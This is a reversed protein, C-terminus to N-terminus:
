ALFEGYIKGITLKRNKVGYIAKAICKKGNQIRSATGVPAFFGAELLPWDPSHHEL